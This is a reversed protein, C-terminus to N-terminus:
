TRVSLMTSISPVTKQVTEMKFVKLWLKSAETRPVQTFNLVIATGLPTILCVKKPPQTDAFDHLSPMAGEIDDGDADAFASTARIEGLL